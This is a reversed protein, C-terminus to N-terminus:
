VSPMENIAVWIVTWIKWFEAGLVEWQCCHISYSLDLVIHTYKCM